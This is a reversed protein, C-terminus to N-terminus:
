HNAIKKDLSIECLTFMHESSHLFHWSYHIHAGVFLFHHSVLEINGFAARDTQRGPVTSSTAGLYDVCVIDPMCQKIPEYQWHASLSRAAADLLQQQPDLQLCYFLLQLVADSNTLVILQESSTL